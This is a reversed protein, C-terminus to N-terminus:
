ISTSAWRCALRAAGGGSDGDACLRLLRALAWCSWRSSSRAEVGHDDIGERWGQRVGYEALGMGLVILALPAAADGILRWRTRRDAGATRGGALGFASGAVISAVIPNTLVSRATTGFGKLSLEGHRAWEVSVSVLTWLLLTNFVLM